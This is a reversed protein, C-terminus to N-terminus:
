LQGPPAIKLAEIMMFLPFEKRARDEAAARPGPESIKPSIWEEIRLIAFGAACLAKSYDQLSRHFSCTRVGGHKGPAMDISAQAASLYGDLRRYQIHEKEDYGWSSRKPIRFAPHNLVAIFRGRPALVRASELFALEIREMNQLALIALVASFVGDAAFTLREAPATHYSIQDDHDRAKKILEPSIDAGVVSHGEATLLRTFYGEGCGIELIPKRKLPALLRISNPAIVTEQYTGGQALHEEYWRAVEGWSTTKPAPRKASKHGSSPQKGRFKM